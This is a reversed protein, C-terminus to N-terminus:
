KQGFVISELKAIRESLSKEEKNKEEVKESFRRLVLTEFEKVKTKIVALVALDQPQNSSCIESIEAFLISAWWQLKGDAETLKKVEAKTM